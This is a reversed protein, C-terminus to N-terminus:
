TSTRAASCAMAADNPCDHFDAFRGQALAEDCGAEHTCQECRRLQAELDVAREEHVYRRPDIGRQILARKMRLGGMRELVAERWREGQRINAVIAAILVAMVGVVGAIMLLGTLSSLM